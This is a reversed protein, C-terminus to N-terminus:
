EHKKETYVHQLAKNYYEKAAINQNTDDSDTSIGKKKDLWSIGSNIDGTTCEPSQIRRSIAHEIMDETLPVGDGTTSLGDSPPPSVHKKQHQDVHDDHPPKFFNRKHSRITAKNDEPYAAYLRANISEPTLTELDTVSLNQLYSFVKDKTTVETKAM